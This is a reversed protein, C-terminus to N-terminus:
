ARAIRIDGSGTRAHISVYPDDPGPEATPPLAIDVDGSSSHLDLWAALQGAVGVTIDGSATRVHVSGSTAALRFDGSALKAEARGTLRGITADGSATRLTLDAGCSDVRIDGSGSSVDAEGDVALVTIDGSGTHLGATATAALRLDGSGSRASVRGLRVDTTLDGSGSTLTLDTGAPVALRIRAEGSAWGTAPPVVVRVEAGFTQVHVRAEQEDGDCDIEGHVAGDDSAVVEVLGAGVQLQVHEADPARFTRM